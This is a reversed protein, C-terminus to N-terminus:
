PLLRRTEAWTVLAERVPGPALHGVLWELHATLNKQWRLVLIDGVPLDRWGDALAAARAPTLTLAALTDVALAEPNWDPDTDDPGLQEIVWMRLMFEQQAVRVRSTETGDLLGRNALLSLKAWRRRDEGPRDRAYAHGQALVRATELLKGSTSAIFNQMQELTWTSPDPLPQEKGM